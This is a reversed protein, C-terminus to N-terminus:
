FECKSFKAYLKEKKLLELVAKLHEEHEKKNKSYMLIDDIFVIVFKDLFPKWVRNMLDMFVTPANTLGFPMVQFEYHGYRTRFAMKPIDEERVRLQHYGSRLDIKSYVNSGQLQDFLDDILLAAVSARDRDLNVYLAVCSDDKLVYMHEIDNLNLHSFNSEKFTYDMKDARIVTISDLLRFEFQHDVKVEKVFTIRLDSYVNGKTVSARKGKYFLKQMKQHIGLAVDEDNYETAPRKTISLAYKKGKMDKNGSELYQLDKNFFHEIPVRRGYRPGDLPLPENYDAVFESRPRIFDADVDPVLALAHNKVETIVHASVPEEIAAQITFDIFDNMRKKLDDSPIKSACSICSTLEPNGGLILGLTPTERPTLHMELNFVTSGHQNQGTPETMTFKPVILRQSEPLRDLDISDGCPKGKRSSRNHSNLRSTRTTRPLGVDGLSPTPNKNLYCSVDDHSSGTRPPSLPKFIHTEKEKAEKQKYHVFVMYNSVDDVDGENVINDLRTASPTQDSDIFDRDDQTDKRIELGEGQGGVDGSDNKRTQKGKSLYEKYKDMQKITDNLMTEQIQGTAVMNRVFHTNIETHKTRQNQVHNVTLYIVTVNDFYIFTASVLPSHLEHLLNRLWATEAVANAVGPVGDPSFKSESDAPTRSSNRNVM